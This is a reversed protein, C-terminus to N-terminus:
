LAAFDCVPKDGWPLEIYIPRRIPLAARESDSLIDLSEAMLVRDIIGLTTAWEFQTIQLSEVFAVIDAM